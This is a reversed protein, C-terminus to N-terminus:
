EHSSIAGIFFRYSVYEILISFEVVPKILQTVEGEILCNLEMTAKQFPM